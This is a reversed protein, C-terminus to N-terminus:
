FLGGALSMIFELSDTETYDAPVTFLSNDINGFDDLLIVSQNKSTTEGLAYPTFTDCTYYYDMIVNGAQVKIDYCSVDNVKVKVRKDPSFSTLYPISYAGTDLEGFISALDFESEDVGAMKALAQQEKVTLNCYTKNNDDVMVVDGNERFIMSFNTIGDMLDSETIKLANDTGNSAYIVGDMNLAFSKYNSEYSDLKAAIRLIARADNAKVLADSNIDAKATEIENFDILGASYRLALRADNAQVSGNGDIDGPIYETEAACAITLCSCILCLALLTSIIKKM